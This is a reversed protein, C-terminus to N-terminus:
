GLKFNTSKTELSLLNFFNIEVIFLYAGYNKKLFNHRKPAEYARLVKGAGIKIQQLPM